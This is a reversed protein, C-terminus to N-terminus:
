SLIASEVDHPVTSVANAHQSFIERDFSDLTIPFRNGM